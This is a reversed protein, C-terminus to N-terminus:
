AIEVHERALGLERTVDMTVKGSCRKQERDSGVVLM